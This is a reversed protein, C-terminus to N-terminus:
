SACAVERTATVASYAAMYNAAMTEASFLRSRALSRQGLDERLAPEGILQLLAAKLREPEDPAVFLAAGNWNERLSPIDALVLACGSMAAELVTLGFPEYRAPHAYIAAYALCDAITRPAVPGLRLAADSPWRADVAAKVPHRDEGALWVPWPLSEAVSTLAEINKAEDWLRGAAFVIPKKTERRFLGPARGNPITRGSPLGPGYHREIERLMAESPATILNASQLGARVRRRYTNWEPPADEGRVARWWSLVCSHATMVVPAQFPLAGHCYGNLHIVDPDYRDALDLLWRGSDDVDRWPNNMWELCYNSALLRVNNLRAAQRRQEDSPLGGMTVLIVEVCHPELAASLELAFTWVGGVTDATMLVRRPAAEFM